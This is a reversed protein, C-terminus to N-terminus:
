DSLDMFWSSLLIISIMIPAIYKIIFKLPKIIKESYNSGSLIEKEMQNSNWIYGALICIFIGGLPMLIKDSINSFIDFFTMGSIRFDNLKGFSLSSLSNTICIATFILIIATLRNMKKNECLYATIVEFLSIASTVAAFFVLLFFIVAFIRGFSIERFVNPLAKFLMGAGTSPPINYAFIAPLVAFGSTVAIISDFLPIYLSNKILNINDDLYSGYTIITGMGLSLSFFVQGLANIFINIWDNLSNIESLDPIIFFKVGNVAGPLSLTKIAIVIIFIFLLPLMIKSIKEIGNSIGMKVILACIFTFIILWIIPETSSQTFETFYQEPNEINGKIYSFIYKLVWGGIVMYYSLIAFSGIVGFAGAFGWKSHIKRCADISNSKTHRGIAMETLLLPIGLIIMLLFYMILFIAGGNSGALYPFKWLNGLGVASGAAAMLFGFESSWKERKIM